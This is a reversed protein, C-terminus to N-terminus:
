RQLIWMVHQQVVISIIECDKQMILYALQHEKVIEQTWAESTRTGLVSQKIAAKLQRMKALLVTRMLGPRMRVVLGSTTSERM